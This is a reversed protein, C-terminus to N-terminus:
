FSSYNMLEEIVRKREEGELAYALLLSTYATYESLNYIPMAATNKFGEASKYIYNGSKVPTIYLDVGKSKCMKALYLFSRSDDEGGCMCSTGSHYLKLLVAKVNKDININKYDLGVYSHILLVDSRLTLKRNKLFGLQSGVSSKKTDFASFRGDIIEGYANGFSTFSDSYADAELLRSAAHIKTNEGTNTWSVFVGHGPIRGRNVEEIFTVAGIINERANSRPDTMVYNAATIVVPKSVWGLSLGLLNSTYALTDSGHTVIVGDFENYDVALMFNLLQSLTEVNANESLMNFPSAFELDDNPCLQALSKSVNIDVDAVGGRELSGITGGTFIFLIKM